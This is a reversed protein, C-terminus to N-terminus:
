LGLERLIMDTVAGCLEAKERRFPACNRDLFDADLEQETSKARARMFEALERAARPLIANMADAPIHDGAAKLFLESSLNWATKADSLDQQVETRCSIESFASFHRERAEPDMNAPRYYAAIRCHTDRPETLLESMNVQCGSDTYAAICSPLYEECFCKAAPEKGLLRASHQFPCRIVDILAVQENVRQRHAVLRPDYFRGRPVLFFNEMNTKIGVAAHREKQYFGKQEGYGRAIKRLTTEGDPMDAVAQAITLCLINWSDCLNQAELEYITNM